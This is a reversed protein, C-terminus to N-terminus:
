REHDKDYAALAARAEMCERGHLDPSPNEWPGVCSDLCAFEATPHLAEALAKAHATDDTFTITLGDHSLAGLLEDLTWEADLLLGKISKSEALAKEIDTM